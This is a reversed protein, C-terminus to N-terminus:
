IVFHRLLIVFYSLLIVFCNLLIVFSWAFDYIVSSIM